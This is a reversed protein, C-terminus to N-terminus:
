SRRFYLCVDRDSCVAIADDLGPFLMPSKSFDLGSPKGKPASLFPTRPKSCEYTKLKVKEQAVPVAPKECDGALGDAAASCDM